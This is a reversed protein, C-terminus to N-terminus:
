GGRNRNRLNNKERWGTLEESEGSSRSVQKVVDVDM